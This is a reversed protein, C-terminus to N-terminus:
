KNNENKEKRRKITLYETIVIGVVLGILTGSLIGVIINSTFLRGFIMGLGLGFLMFLVNYILVDEEFKHRKIENMKDIEVQERNFEEISVGNISTIVNNESVGLNEMKTKEIKVEEKNM